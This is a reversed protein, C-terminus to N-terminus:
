RAPSSLAQQKIKFPGRHSFVQRRLKAFLVPASWGPCGRLRILVKTIGKNSFIMYLSALLSIEIKYSTETASSVPKLRAKDSEWSLNERMGAWIYEQQQTTLPCFYKLIANTRCSLLSVIKVQGAFVHVQGKFPYYAIFFM